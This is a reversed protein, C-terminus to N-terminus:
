QEGNQQQEGIQQEEGNQQQVGIQQQAGHQQQAGIQQQQAGNQVGEEEPKEVTTSGEAGDGQGKKCDELKANFPFVILGGIRIRDWGYQNCEEKLEEEEQRVRPAHNTAKALLTHGVSGPPLARASHAHGM